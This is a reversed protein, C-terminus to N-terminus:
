CQNTAGEKWTPQAPELGAVRELFVLNIILTEYDRISRSSITFRTGRADNTRNWGLGGFYIKNWM